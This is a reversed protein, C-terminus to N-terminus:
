RRTRLITRCPSGRNPVWGGSDDVSQPFLMKKDNQPTSKASSDRQPNTSLDFLSEESRESHCFTSNKLPGKFHLLFFGISDVRCLDARTAAFVVELALVM